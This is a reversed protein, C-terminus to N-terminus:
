GFGRFCTLKFNVVEVSDRSSIPSSIHLPISKLERNCFIPVYQFQLPPAFKFFM